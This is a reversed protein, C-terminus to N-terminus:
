SEDDRGRGKGAKGRRLVRGEVGGNGAASDRGALHVRREARAPALGVGVGADVDAAALGLDGAVVAVVAVIYTDRHEITGSNVLTFVLGSELEGALAGVSGVGSRCHRGVLLGNRTLHAAEPVTSADLGASAVTSRSELAFLGAVCAATVEGDVVAAGDGGVRGTTGGTSGACRATTGGRGARTTGGLGAGTSSGHSLVTSGDKSTTEQSDEANGQLSRPKVSHCRAPGLLVAFYTFLTVILLMIARRMTLRTMM